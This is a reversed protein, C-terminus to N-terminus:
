SWAGPSSRAEAPVFHEGFLTLCVGFQLGAQNCSGCQIGARWGHVRVFPLGLNGCDGLYPGFRGNIMM